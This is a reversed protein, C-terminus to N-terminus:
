WLKKLVFVGAFIVIVVAIAAFSYQLPGEPLAAAATMWAPVSGAGIKIANDLNISHKAIERRKQPMDETRVGSGDDIIKPGSISPEEKWLMVSRDIVGHDPMQVGVDEGMVRRTWGKGFTSWHRLTKLWNWRKFNYDILLQEINNKAKIAALTVNGMVGDEKVGLLSQMFKTARSPGSNIAFDYMAYDVGNPLYDGWVKDWYQDKYIAIVEDKTIYRVSQPERKKRQRWADYTTQIVGMNTAGGPDDPHNVYGGEHALIWETSTILNDRM